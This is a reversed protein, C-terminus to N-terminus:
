ASPPLEYGRAASSHIKRATDLFARMRTLSSPTFTVDEGDGRDSIQGDALLYGLWRRGVASSAGSAEIIGAESMVDNESAAVFLHLLMNWGHEDFIESPYADQRAARVRILNRAMQGRDYDGIM